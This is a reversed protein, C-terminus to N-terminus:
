LLSWDESDSGSTSSEVDGEASAAHQPPVSSTRSGSRNMAHETESPIDPWDCESGSSDMGSGPTRSVFVFCSSSDSGEDSEAIDGLDKDPTDISSARDQHNLITIHRTGFTVPSTSEEGNVYQPINKIDMVGNGDSNKSEEGKTTPKTDAASSRRKKPSEDINDQAPENMYREQGKSTLRIPLETTASKTTTVQVYREKRKRKRPASNEEEDGDFDGGDDAWPPTDASSEAANAPQEFMMQLTDTKSPLQIIAAAADHEFKTIRINRCLDQHFLLIEYALERFAPDEALRHRMLCSLCYQIIADVLNEHKRLHKYVYQIAACLDIPQDPSSCGFECQRFVNAYAQTHLDPIDYLNGLHFLQCHLLLSTPVDEVLAQPMYSGTYLYRVFPVAAFPSLSDLFLQPGASSDEFAAALLPCREELVWVNIGSITDIRSEDVHFSICAEGKPFWEMFAMEDQSEPMPLSPISNIHLDQASPQPSWGQHLFFQEDAQQDEFTDATDPWAEQHCHLRQMDDELLSRKVCAHDDQDANDYHQQQLLPPSFTAADHQHDHYVLGMSSEPGRRHVSDNSEAM